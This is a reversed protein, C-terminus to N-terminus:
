FGTKKLSKMEITLMLSQVSQVSPYSKNEQFSVYIYEDQKPFHHLWTKITIMETSPFVRAEGKVYSIFSFISFFIEKAIVQLKGKCNAFTKGIVTVPKAHAFTFVPTM